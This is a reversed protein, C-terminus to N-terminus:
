HGGWGGGMGGGAGYGGPGRADRLDQIQQLNTRPVMFRNPNVKPVAAAVAPPQWVTQQPRAVFAAPQTIAPLAAVAPRPAAAVPSWSVPGGAALGVIGGNAKRFDEPSSFPNIFQSWSWDPGVSKGDDPPVIVERMTPGTDAEGPPTSFPNFFKAWYGSPEATAVRPNPPHRVKGGEALAVIGGNAYGAPTAGGGFGGGGQQPYRSMMDRMGGFGGFGGYGGRMGMQRGMMGPNDFRGTLPGGPSAGTAAAPLGTTSPTPAAPATPDTVSGNDAPLFNAGTPGPLGAIGAGMMGGPRGGMMGGMGGPRGFQGMMNNGQQGMRSMADQFQRQMAPDAAMQAVKDQGSQPLGQPLQQQQPTGGAGKGQGKGGPAQGNPYGATGTTPLTQPTATGGGGKGTGAMVKIEKNEFTVKFWVAATSAHHRPQRDPARSGCM